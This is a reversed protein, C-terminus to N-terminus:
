ALDAGNEKGKNKNGRNKRLTLPYIKKKFISLFTGFTKGNEVAEPFDGFTKVFLVLNIQLFHRYKKKILPFVMNGLRFFIQYFVNAKVM